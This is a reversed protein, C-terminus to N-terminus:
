QSVLILKHANAYSRLKQRADSRGEDNAIHWQTAVLGGGHVRRLEAAQTNGIKPGNWKIYVQKKM